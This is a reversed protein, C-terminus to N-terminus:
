IMFIRLPYRVYEHINEYFFIHGLRAGMLVGFLCYMSIAECFEKVRLQLSLKSSASKYLNQTYYQRYLSCLTAYGVGCGMALIAGYWTIPHDIFPLYFIERRPNWSIWSFVQVM